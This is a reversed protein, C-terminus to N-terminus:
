FKVYNRMMQLACPMYQALWQNTRMRSPFPVTMPVTCPLETVKDESFIDTFELFTELIAELPIVEVDGLDEPIGELHNIEGGVDGLIVNHSTLCNKTCFPSDFVVCKTTWEITPNHLKLWSMGLVIAHRGINAVNCTIAENHNGISIIFTCEFEVLGSSIDRGDIVKLRKPSKKKTNPIKYKDVLDKHIFCSSAGSDIM